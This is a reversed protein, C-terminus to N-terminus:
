LICGHVPFGYPPKLKDYGDVHWSHNPGPNCYTRRRLTKARRAQVGDPDLEKVVERVTERTSSSGRNALHALCFSLWWLEWIWGIGTLWSPPYWWSQIGPEKKTPWTRSTKHELNAHFHKHWSIKVWVSTDQWVRLGAQFLTRDNKWLDCRWVPIGRNVRGCFPCHTLLAQIAEGCFPCFM